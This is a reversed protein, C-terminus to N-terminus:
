IRILSVLVTRGDNIARCNKKVVNIRFAKRNALEEVM